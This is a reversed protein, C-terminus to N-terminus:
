NIVIRKVISREDHIIRLLYIGARHNSLDLLLNGSNNFENLLLVGHMDYVQISYNEFDCLLHIEGNSPNPFVEFSHEKNAPINTVLSLGYVEFEFLSYGYPTGRSTGYMRIYRGYTDNNVSIKDDGGVGNNESAIVTYDNFDPDDSLQIEYESGYANEWRLVVEVIKYDQELDIVVWQPDVDTESGWRSNLDGDNVSKVAWPEQISSSWAPKHLAINIETASPKVTVNIQDTAEKGDNDTVKLSFIYSGHTLSNVMTISSEPNEIVANEGGVLTWQYQVISGDPDYSLSGDLKVTSSPSQITINKGANAIPKQNTNLSNYFQRPGVNITEVLVGNNYISVDKAVTAHNYLLYIPDGSEPNEYVVGTPLSTSYGKAPRGYSLSANANYYNVTSNVHTTWEGGETTYLENLMSAVLEPNYSQIYNMHYGGLYAGMGSINTYYDTNTAEGFTIRDELMEDFISKAINSDDGLYYNYYFNCPVFQIGLAWAPDGHFYTAMALNNARNIGVYNYTYENPLDGHRNFWYNATTTGELMFGTAGLSTIEHDELAVGLLYIAFWSHTAESSSEQNNGDMPSGIGGAWSHGMYPDFTRLFPQGGDAKSENRTWNAYSKAIKKVMDGYQEKFEDDVLMLRAAGMIFYGYHFHLDNFAQSGYGSPFGILAGFEPYRAFFYQGQGAESPEYTLWDILENKLNDRITGYGPHDIEHAMLMINSEEGFGKAYTNGNRSNNSDAIRQTVMGYLRQQDVENMGLPEPLYPPMGGFDYKLAISSGLTAKMNGRMTKYEAGSILAPISTNRYHHPLLALITPNNKVGNEYNETTLNFTTIIKGNQIQYDWEFSTNTVKNRSHNDYVSILSQSPIWSVTLYNNNTSPYNVVFEGSSTRDFQSGVPAHVGLLDGDISFVLTNTTVPFQTVEAGSVDYIASPTNSTEIVPDIGNMDIYTYPVGHVVTGDMRNGDDDELRFVVSLDSWDYVKADQPWFTNSFSSGVQTLDSFVINDCMIFGWGGSSSDVIRIEADQGKYASVDMRRWTMVGSNEGTESLVRVGGIYLGIFTADPNNGGGVLLHIYDKEIKFSPSTLTVQPNDGKFTNIFRSGLFGSPSPNQDIDTLSVPGSYPPNSSIDWGDPYNESEFDAFILTGGSDQLDINGKIQIWTDALTTLGRNDPMIFGTPVSVRIGNSTGEVRQPFAELRGTYKEFIAATWWSNTPIPSNIKNAHIYWPWGTKLENYTKGFYAGEEYVSTPVDSSYSGAGINVPTQALTMLPLLLIFAIVLFVNKM